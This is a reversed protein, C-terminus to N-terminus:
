CCRPVTLLLLLLLLLQTRSRARHRVKCGLGGDGTRAQRSGNLRVGLEHEYNSDLWGGYGYGAATQLFDAKAAHVDACAAFPPAAM